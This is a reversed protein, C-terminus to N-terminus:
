SLQGPHPKEPFPSRHMVKWALQSANIADKQIIQEKQMFRMIEEKDLKYGDGIAKDLRNGFAEISITSQQNGFLVVALWSPWPSNGSGSNISFKIGLSNLWHGCQYVEANNRFLVADIDGVEVSKRFVENEIVPIRNRLREFVQRPENSKLSQLILRADKVLSIMEHTEFRHSKELEVEYIRGRLEGRVKALFKASSTGGDRIQYDNVSQLPDGLLTVTGDVSLTRKLLEFVLDARHAVLDQVEDVFLYKLQNVRDTYQVLNDKALLNSLFSIRQNYNKRSLDYGGDNLIWTAYADFTAIRVYRLDRTAGQEVAESIRDRIEKIAARTFSLVLLESPKATHFYTNLFHILRQILTYTKGTGPPSLVLINQDRHAEIVTRQLDLDDDRDFDALGETEISNEIEPEVQIEISETEESDEEITEHLDWYYDGTDRFEDPYGYLVQNVQKRDVGIERALVRAKEPGNTSLYEAIRDKVTMRADQGAEKGNMNSEILM